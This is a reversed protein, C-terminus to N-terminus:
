RSRQQTYQLLPWRSASAPEHLCWAHPLGGSLRSPQLHWSLQNPRLAPLACGWGLAHGPAPYLSSPLSLLGQDVLHPSPQIAIVQAYPLPFAPMQARM